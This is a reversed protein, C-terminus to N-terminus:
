PRKRLMLLTVDDEQEWGAGTFGELEELLIEILDDRNYHDQVLRMLRPTGFMERNANHAEVLGDSYFLICDDAAINVEQESYEQDPMLGLPMGTSWLESITGNHALYPLNHGANAFRLRGNTPDLIGYFCTAFTMPPIHVQLLDNVQKLAQGPSDSGPAAARLMATTTAMILASPMGKGNADGIVIGIKGGPLSLFDYLDGGVQRAPRYFPEIQWGPIPPVSEPLLSKQIFFASQMEQEIRAREERRASQEALARQQEFSTVIQEAM